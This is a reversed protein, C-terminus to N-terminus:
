SAILDKLQELPTSKSVFGAAGLRMAEDQNERQDDASLVFVRATPCRAVLEPLAEMGSMVPMTLDLLVIDPCARAVVEIAERGNTAEAVVAFRPDLGLTMRLLTRIDDTDDVLVVSRPESSQVCAQHEGMGDGIFTTM